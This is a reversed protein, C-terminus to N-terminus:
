FELTGQDKTEQSFREAQKFTISSPPMEIQKGAFLEEVTVIQLRPYDRNWGLSHYYGKELVETGVPELV